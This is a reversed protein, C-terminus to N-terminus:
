TGKYYLGNLLEKKSYLHDNCTLSNSLFDDEYDLDGSTLSLSGTTIIRCISTLLFCMGLQVQDEFIISSSRKCAIDGSSVM